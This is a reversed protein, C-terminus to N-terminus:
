QEELQSLSGPELTASPSAQRARSIGQGTGQDTSQAAGTIGRWVASLAIICDALTGLGPPGSALIGLLSVTRPLWRPLWGPSRSGAGPPGGCAKGPLRTKGVGADGVVLVLRTDGGLAVRLRSLERERGVFGPGAM